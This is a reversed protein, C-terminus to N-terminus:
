GNEVEKLSFKSTIWENVAHDVDTDGPSLPPAIKPRVEYMPEYWDDSCRYFVINDKAEEQACYYATQGQTNEYSFVVRCYGPETYEYKLQSM